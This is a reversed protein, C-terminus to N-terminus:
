LVVNNFFMTLCYNERFLWERSVFVTRVFLLCRFILHFLGKFDVCCLLSFSCM